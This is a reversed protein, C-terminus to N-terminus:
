CESFKGVLEMQKGSEQGTCFTTTLMVLAIHRLSLLWKYILNIITTVHQVHKVCLRRLLHYSYTISTLVDSM